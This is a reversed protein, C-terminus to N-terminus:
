ANRQNKENKSREPFSINPYTPKVLVKLRRLIETERQKKAEYEDPKLKKKEEPDSEVFDFFMGLDQYEKKLALIEKEKDTLPAM